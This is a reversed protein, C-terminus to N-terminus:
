TGKPIPVLCECKRISSLVRHQNSLLLSHIHTKGKVNNASRESIVIVDCQNETLILVKGLNRIFYAGNGTLLISPNLNRGRERHARCRGILSADVLCIPDTNCASFVIPADIWRVVPLPNGAETGQTSADTSQDDTALSPLPQEGLLKSPIAVRRTAQLFSASERTRNAIGTPATAQSYGRLAVVRPQQQKNLVPISGHACEESFMLEKITRPRPDGIRRNASSSM